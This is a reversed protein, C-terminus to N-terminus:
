DRMPKAKSFMDGLTNGAKAEGEQIIRATEELEQWTQPLPPQIKLFIKETISFGVQVFWPVAVLKGNVKNNDLLQPFYEKLEEEPIYDHLDEFHTALLGPWM